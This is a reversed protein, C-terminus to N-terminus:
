VLPDQPVAVELKWSKRSLATRGRYPVVSLAFGLFSTAALALWFMVPPIGKRRLYTSIVATTLSAIPGAAVQLARMTPRRKAASPWKAWVRGGDPWVSTVTTSRGTWRVITGLRIGRLRGGALPVLAAHALEHITASLFSATPLFALFEYLDLDATYRLLFGIIRRVLEAPAIM